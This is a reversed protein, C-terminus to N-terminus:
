ESLGLVRFKACGPSKGAHERGPSKELMGRGSHPKSLNLNALSELMAVMQRSMELIEEEVM